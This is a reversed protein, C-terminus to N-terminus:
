AIGEQGPINKRQNPTPTTLLCINSITPEIELIAGLIDVQNIRGTTM